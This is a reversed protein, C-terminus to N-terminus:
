ESRADQMECRADRIGFRDQKEGTKSRSRRTITLLIESGLYVSGLILSLRMTEMIARAGLAPLAVNKNGDM